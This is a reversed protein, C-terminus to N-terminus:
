EPKQDLEGTVLVDGGHSGLIPLLKLKFTHVDQAAQKYKGGLNVVWFRIGGEGEAERSVAVQLELEISEVKFRLNEQSSTLVSEQLERRLQQIMEALPIGRTDTLEVAM